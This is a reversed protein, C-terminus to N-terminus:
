VRGKQNAYLRANVLGQIRNIDNESLGLSSLAQIRAAGTGYRNNRIIDNVIEDDSPIAPHTFAYAQRGIQNGIDQAIQSIQQQRPTNFQYSELEPYISGVRYTSNQPRHYALENAAYQVAGDPYKTRLYGLARVPDVGNEWFSRLENFAANHQDAENQNM